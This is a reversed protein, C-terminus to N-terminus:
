LVRFTNHVIGSLFSSFYIITISKPGCKKAKSIHETILERMPFDAVDPNYIFALNRFIHLGLDPTRHM